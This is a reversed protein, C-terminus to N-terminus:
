KIQPILNGINHHYEITPTPIVSNIFSSDGSGSCMKGIVTFFIAGVLAILFKEGCGSCGSQNNFNNLNDFHGSSSGRNEIETRNILKNGM